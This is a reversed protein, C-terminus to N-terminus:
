RVASASAAQSAAGCRNSITTLWRTGAADVSSSSTASCSSAGSRGTRSAVADAPLILVSDNTAAPTASTTCQGTTALWIAAASSRQEGIFRGNEQLAPISFIQQALEEDSVRIGQREAEALAAQEDVMQQLLEPEARQPARAPAREGVGFADVVAPQTAGQCRPEGGLPHAHQALARRRQDRLQEVGVLRARREVHHRLHGVDHRRAHEAPHEPRPLLVVLQEGLPRLRQDEHEGGLGLHHLRHPRGLGLDRRVGTVQEGVLAPM